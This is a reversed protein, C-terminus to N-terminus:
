SPVRMKVVYSAPYVRRGDRVYRRELESAIAIDVTEYGLRGLFAEVDDPHIGFTVPEGVFHLLHPSMRLLTSVLNPADVMYWFDMMLESGPGSLVHMTELTEKVADRTLYMSVGEWVVFTRKGPQFGAELLRTKLSHTQFDIAVPVVGVDPFDVPHKAIVKAKRRGTSPHDVAFVRTHELAKAFRWPRTDYGAGLLVLQDVGQPLSETLADDICRHRTLIYALLGPSFAEAQDTIRRGVKMTKLTARLLPGLFRKAQPDDLIRQGPQRRQDSARMFCVAEATRSPADRM